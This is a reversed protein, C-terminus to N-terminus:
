AGGGESPITLTIEPEQRDGARDVLALDSRCRLEWDQGHVTSARVPNHATSTGASRHVQQRVPPGEDLREAIYGPCQVRLTTAAAFVRRMGQDGVVPPRARVDFERRSRAPVTRTKTSLVSDVFGQSLATLPPPM